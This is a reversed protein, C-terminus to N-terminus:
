QKHNDLIIKLKGATIRYGIMEPHKNLIDVCANYLIKVDEIYLTMDVYDKNTKPDLLIHEM